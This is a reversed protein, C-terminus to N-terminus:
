KKYWRDQMWPPLNVGDLPPLTIVLDPKDPFTVRREEEAGYLRGTTEAWEEFWNVKSGHKSPIAFCYFRLGNDLKLADDESFGFSGDPKNASIWNFFLGSLDEWVEGEYFEIYRYKALRFTGRVLITRQRRAAAKPHPNLRDLCCM